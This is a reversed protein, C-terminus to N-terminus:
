GGGHQATIKETLRAVAIRLEMVAPALGETRQEIVGVRAEISGYARAAGFGAISGVLLLGCITLINATTIKPM